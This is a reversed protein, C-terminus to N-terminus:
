SEQRLYCLKTTGALNDFLSYCVPVVLLTLLTSSITGGLVAISLPGYEGAGDGVGFAAPTMALIVTLSTMLIPRMREPCAKLIAQNTCIGDRKYRNILDVLLISNKSVLGVLLIMGIMSYINLSAEAIWLGAVGGVVALPQATMILLPQFISNFQSALVMYVLVMAIVFVVVGVGSSKQMEETQGGLVINYGSPLVDDSISKFLAVAQDLSISPYSFFGVSFNMNLRNISSAGFGENVSMISNFPVREGKANTFYLKRFDDVNANGKDGLSVVIDYRDSSINPDNFMSIRYGEGFASLVSAIENISVDALIAARRNIIFDYNPQDLSLDITVDGLEPRYKAIGYIQETYEALKNLDEGTIYVEFPANSGGAWAPFAGITVEVGTVNRLKSRLESAIEKQSLNRKSKPILFVRIEAKNVSIAEDYGITSFVRSIDGRQSILQEAERVRSLMYGTSVGPPAKLEIILRSEDDKPFFEIPLDVAIFGSGIVLLATCGIFSIRHLLVYNLIVGYWNDIIAHGSNIIKYIKRSPKESAKLMFISSLAPTLSLSVMLSTAVGAVIVIAFAKLFEGIAADIFVVAGFICVLTLSAAFVSFVVEKTARAIVEATGFVEQRLHRDINEIVVIADDVVVGILILLGSMTMVNLTFDFYYMAIVAGALSIPISTLVVLTSTTNLLFLWVVFAALISGEILHSRLSDIIREIVENESSVIEIDVGDPIGNNDNILSTIRRVVDITNAGDVKIIAIAVGKKGNLRSVGINHSLGFYVDAIDGLTVQYSDGYNAVVLSKLEAISHFEFDLNLSKRLDGSTVHGGPFQRQQAHIAAYVQNLGLGHKLLKSEDIEVQIKNGKGGNVLVKGVGDINEIKRKVSRNAIFTLEDISRNGSMFIWMVPLANPDVKSVVPLESEDPLLNAIKNIKSQVENFAMQMDVSRSFQIFVRSNGALSSSNIREVGAISNVSSEIISTVNSDITSPPAGPFPTEVVLYPANVDPMRDVGLAVLGIVGFLVIAVNLMIAFIRYKVFVDILSM